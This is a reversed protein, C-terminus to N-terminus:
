RHYWEFDWVTSSTGIAIFKNDIHTSVLSALTTDIKFLSCKVMTVIGQMNHSPDLYMSCRSEICRLESNCSDIITHPLFGSSDMVDVVRVCLAGLSSINRWHSIHVVLHIYVFSETYHHLPVANSHVNGQQNILNRNVWISQLLFKTSYDWLQWCYQIM